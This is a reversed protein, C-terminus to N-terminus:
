YQIIINLYYLTMTYNKTHKTIEFARLLSAKFANWQNSYFSNGAWSGDSLLLACVVAELVRYSVFTLPTVSCHAWLSVMHCHQPCSVLKRM